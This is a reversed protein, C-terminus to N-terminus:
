LHVLSSVELGNSATGPAEGRAPRRDICKIADIVIGVERANRRLLLSAATAARYGERCYVLSPKSFDISLAEANLELLPISIAGPLHGQLWEPLSRVDILQHTRSEQQDRCADKCAVIPLTALRIGHHRWQKEDALTFGAIHELGVRALRIQAEQASAEDEAVILLRQTPAILLAAWSAFPGMLGLQMAGPIHASAFLEAARTDLILVGREQQQAIQVATFQQLKLSGAMHIL